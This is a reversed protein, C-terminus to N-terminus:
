LVLHIQFLNRSAITAGYFLNKYELGKFINSKTVKIKIRDYILDFRINKLPRICVVNDIRRENGTTFNIKLRVMGKQFEPRTQKTIEWFQISKM